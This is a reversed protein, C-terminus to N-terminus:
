SLHLFHHSSEPYLTMTGAPDREIVRSLYDMHNCYSPRQGHGKSMALDSVNEM